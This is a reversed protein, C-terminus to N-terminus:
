QYTARSTESWPKTLIYSYIQELNSKAQESMELGLGFEYARITLLYSPPPECHNIQHYVALVSAPSMAHTTFSDDREAKIQQYEFNPECEISNSIM